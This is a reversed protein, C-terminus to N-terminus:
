PEVSTTALLFVIVFKHMFNISIFIFYLFFIFMSKALIDQSTPNRLVTSPIFGNLSDLLLHCILLKLAIIFATYAKSIAKKTQPNRLRPDKGWTNNNTTIMLARYRERM